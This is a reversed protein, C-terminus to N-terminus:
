PGVGTPISLASEFKSGLTRIEAAVRGFADAIQKRGRFTRPGASIGAKPTMISEILGRYRVVDETSICDTAFPRALYSNVATLQCLGSPVAGGTFAFVSYWNSLGDLVTQNTQLESRMGASPQRDGASHDSQTAGARNPDDMSIEGEQLIGGGFPAIAPSFGPRDLQEAFPQM